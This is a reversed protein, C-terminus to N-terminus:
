VGHDLKILWKKINATKPILQNLQRLTARTQLRAYRTSAPKYGDPSLNTTIANILRTKEQRLYEPAFQNFIPQFKEYAQPKFDTFQGNADIWPSHPRLAMILSHGNPVPLTAAHSRPKIMDNTTKEYPRLMKMIIYGHPTNQNFPTKAEIRIFKNAIIIHSNTTLAYNLLDSDIINDGHQIQQNIAKILKKDKTSIATIFNRSQKPFNYLLGLNYLINDHLDSFISIKTVDIKHLGHNIDLKAKGQPYSLLLGHDWISGIGSINEYATATIDNPLNISITGGDTIANGGNNTLKIKARENVMFYRITVGIIGCSFAANNDSLQQHILAIIDKYHDNNYRNDVTM